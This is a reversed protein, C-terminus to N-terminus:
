IAQFSGAPLAQVSQSVGVCLGSTTLFAIDTADRGVGIRVLGELPALRTPDVLWWGGDLYVELVAHFDRPELHAAYASVARAPISLARCLTIGLHSFDRCVGARDVFTREATTEANSVGPVYDVHQEIWDLVALVQAGGEKIHGFERNAFRLFRDSPCYRSPSLYQVVAQPLELWTLKRVSAPLPMRNGNDVLAEYSIRVEGSFNARFRREGREDAADHVIQVDPSIELTESVVNQEASHAAQISVIGDMGAGFDFVLDSRVNILM